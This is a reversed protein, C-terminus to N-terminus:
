DRRRQTELKQILKLLENVSQRAVTSTSSRQTSTWLVDGTANVLQLTVRGIEVPQGSNPDPQAAERKVTGKLAADAEDPNETILFRGSAPLSNILQDRVQQSFPDSGLPAVYIRRVALLPVAAPKPKSGRTPELQAVESPAPVATEPVAERPSVPRGQGQLPSSSQKVKELEEALQAVQQRM